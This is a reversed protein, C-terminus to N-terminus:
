GPHVQPDTGDSPKPDDKRVFLGAEGIARQIALVYPAVLESDELRQVGVLVEGGSFITFPIENSPPTHLAAQIIWVPDLEVVLEELEAAAKGGENNIILM